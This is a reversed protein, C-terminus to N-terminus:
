VIPNYFRFRNDPDYEAKLSRLRQLRWPEHGYKQELPELGNAYNVYADPLRGPQGGNWEDVVEHAWDWAADVLGSSANAALVANFYVLLHDARFPYASADSDIATVAATSYGEHVIIGVAALSPNSAIRQNFSDYIQQQATLNYVQLGAVTIPRITNESECLFGQEGTGQITSINPYPADGQADWVADIANFPALLKEAEEASGRYTFTWGIVPETESVSANIYFQDFNLTMNVPTSGNNHLANLNTFVTKLNEGRWLYNYYHWTDLGRPYINLEFSIVIGFNHGAGKLGWM